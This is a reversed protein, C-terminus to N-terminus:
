GYVRLEVLLLNVDVWEELNSSPPFETAAKQLSLDLM